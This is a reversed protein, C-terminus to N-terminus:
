ILREIRRKRWFFKYYTFQMALGAIYAAPYGYWVGDLGWRQM